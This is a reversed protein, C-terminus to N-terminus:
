RKLGIGRGPPMIAGAGDLPFGKLRHLVFRKSLQFVGPGACTRIVFNVIHLDDFDFIFNDPIKKVNTDEIALTDVWRNDQPEPVSWSAPVITPKPLRIVRVQPGKSRDGHMAVSM